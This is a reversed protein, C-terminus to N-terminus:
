NNKSFQCQIEMLKSKRWFPFSLRSLVYPVIFFNPPLASLICDARLQVGEGAALLESRPFDGCGKAFRPRPVLHEKIGNWSQSASLRNLHVTTLTMTAQSAGNTGRCSSQLSEEAPGYQHEPSPFAPETEGRSKACQDKWIDLRRCHVCNSKNLRLIIGALGWGGGGSLQTGRSGVKGYEVITQKNTPPLGMASQLKLERWKGCVLSGLEQTTFCLTLVQIM